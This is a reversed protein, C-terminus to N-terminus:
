VEELPKTAGRMVNEDEQSISDFAEISFKQKFWSLFHMQVFNKMIKMHHFIIFTTSLNVHCLVVAAAAVREDKGWIMRSGM